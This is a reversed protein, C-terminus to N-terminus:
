PATPLAEEFQRHHEVRQLRVVAAFAPGLVAGAVLNELEIDM